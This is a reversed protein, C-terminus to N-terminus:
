GIRMLAIVGIALIILFFKKRDLSEKYLVTALLSTGLIYMGHIGQTAALGGLKLAHLFCYGGITGFVAILCGSIAAGRTITTHWEKGHTKRILVFVFPIATVYNCLLYPEIPVSGAAVKHIAKQTVSITVIYGITLITKTSGLELKERYYFLFVIAISLLIGVFQAISLWEGFALIGVLITAVASTTGYVPYYTGVKINSLIKMNAVGGAYYLLSWIGGLIAANVTMNGIKNWFLATAFISSAIFFVFIVAHYDQDKHSPNKLMASYGSFCLTSCLVYEFWGFTM